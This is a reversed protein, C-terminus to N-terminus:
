AAYKEIEQYLERSDDAYIKLVLEKGSGIAMVGVISKADVTWSGCCIDMPYPYASVLSVFEIIDEVKNFRIRTSMKKMREKKNKATILEAPLHVIIFDM